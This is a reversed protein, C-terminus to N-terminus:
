NMVWIYVNLSTAIFLWIIYPLILLSYAKIRSWYRFFFVLMLTTLSSIAIMGLVVQHFYFFIINWSINLFIQLAFLLYFAGKNNIRQSLWALYISFCIMISTWAAGFVWGPPTWPAKLLGIYWDSEVGPGTFFGGIGLAAFNIVLFLVLAKYM